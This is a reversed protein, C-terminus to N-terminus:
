DDQSTGHTSRQCPRDRESNVPVWDGDPAIAVLLLPLSPPM